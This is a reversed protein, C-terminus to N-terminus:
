GLIPELLERVRKSDGAIKTPVHILPLGATRCVRNVMRDRKRRIWKLHSADDLEIAALIRLKRDCIIYDLHKGAIHNLAEQGLKGKSGGRIDVVDAIRVQGFVFYKTGLLSQLLRFFRAESQTFFYEKKRYPRFYRYILVIWFLAFLGIILWAAINHTLSSLNPM